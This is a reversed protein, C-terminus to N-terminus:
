RSRSRNRRAMVDKSHEPDDPARAADVLCKAQEVLVRHVVPPAAGLRLLWTTLAQAVSRATQELREAQWRAESEADAV